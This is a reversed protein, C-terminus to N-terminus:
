QPAPGPEARRMKQWSHWQWSLLVPTSYLLERARKALSLALTSEPPLGVLSGVMVLGAEQVGIGAPVVVLIQRVMLVVAELVLATAFHEEFGFLHLVWWTELVALLYGTLQWMMAKLLRAPESFQQQVARDLAAGNVRAAMKAGVGRTLLNQLGAFLPKRRLLHLCVWPVPLALILGSALVVLQDLAGHLSLLVMLGICVFVYQNCLTVFAETIVSATVATAQGTRAAVLRIGAVDGALSTVPLMGFAERVACVWFLFRGSLKRSQPLVSLLVRWSATDCAMPLAHLPLMLLLGWGALRLTELLKPWDSRIVLVTMLLLGALGLILIIRKM